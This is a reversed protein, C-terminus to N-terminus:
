SCDIVFFIANINVSETTLQRLCLIRVFKKLMHLIIFFSMTM